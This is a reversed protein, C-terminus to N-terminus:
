EDITLFKSFGPEVLTIPYRIQGYEVDLPYERTNDSSLYYLYDIGITTAYNIWDYSIDNNLLNNAEIIVNNEINISNAIIM